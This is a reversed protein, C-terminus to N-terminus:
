ALLQRTAGLSQPGVGVRHADDPVLGRQWDPVPGRRRSHLVRVRAAGPRRLAFALVEASGADIWQADDLAVLLGNGGALERFAGLLGLGIAHPGAPEDGPDRRLLAVELARRQPDPLTTLDEVAVEDFLDVLAAFCLATEAGSSRASLVRMGGTLALDVGAEWLTTKGVGPEGDLVLVQTGAQPDSVFDAIRALEETRGVVGSPGAERVSQHTGPASVTM